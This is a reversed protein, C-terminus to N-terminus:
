IRDSLAQMAFRASPTLKREINIIEDPKVILLSGETVELANVPIDRAIFFEGHVFGGDVDMDTGDFSVLFEFRKAPVFYSIEEHIERVVCELYTEDCERHGGFLSVKGPHLIGTVDDRQQLLFRGFTDILIACAIERPQRSRNINM